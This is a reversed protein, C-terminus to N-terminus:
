DGASYSFVVACGDRALSDGGRADERLTSAPSTLPLAWLALEGPSLGTCLLLPGANRGSPRVTCFLQSLLAPEM